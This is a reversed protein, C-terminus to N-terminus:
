PRRQQEVACRIVREIFDNLRGGEIAREVFDVVPEKLLAAEIAARDSLNVKRSRLVSAADRVDCALVRASKPCAIMLEELVPDDFNTRFFDCDIGPICTECKM